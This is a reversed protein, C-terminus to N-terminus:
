AACSKFDYSCKGNSGGGNEDGGGGYVSGSVSGAGGVSVPPNIPDTIPAIAKDIPVVIPASTLEVAPPNTAAPPLPPPPPPPSDSDDSTISAEACNVFTM